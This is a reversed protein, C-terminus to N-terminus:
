QLSGQSFKFAGVTNDNFGPRTSIGGLFAVPAAIDIRAVTHLAIAKYTFAAFLLGMGVHVRGPYRLVSTRNRCETGEPRVGPMGETFDEVGERLPIWPRLGQLVARNAPR